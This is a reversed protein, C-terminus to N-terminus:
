DRGLKEASIKEAAPMRTFNQATEFEGAQAFTAAVMADEFVNLLTRKRSAKIRAKRRKLASLVKTRLSDVDFPVTIDDSAGQRMGEMALAINESDSLLIVESEPQNKKLRALVQMADHGHQRIDLLALDVEHNACVELAEHKSGATVVSAKLPELNGSLNRLFFPDEIVLLVTASM